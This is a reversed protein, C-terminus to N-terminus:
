LLELRSRAEPVTAEVIHCAAGSDRIADLDISALRQRREEARLASDDVPSPDPTM